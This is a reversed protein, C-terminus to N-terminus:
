CDTPQTPDWNRKRIILMGTVRLRYIGTFLLTHDKDTQKSEEGGPGDHSANLLDQTLTPFFQANDDGERVLHGNSEHGV